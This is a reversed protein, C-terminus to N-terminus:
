LMHVGEVSFAHRGKQHGAKILVAIGCAQYNRLTEIFEAYIKYVDVDPELEDESVSLERPFQLVVAFPTEGLVDEAHPAKAM